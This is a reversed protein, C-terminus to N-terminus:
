NENKDITYNNEISTIDGHIIPGSNNGRTDVNFSSVNGAEEELQNGNGSNCWQDMVAACIKPSTSKVSDYRRLCYLHGDDRNTVQFTTSPYGFVSSRRTSSGGSQSNANSSFLILLTSALLVSYLNKM